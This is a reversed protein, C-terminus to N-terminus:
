SGATTTSAATAKPKCAFLYETQTCYGDMCRKSIPIPTRDYIACGKEAEAGIMKMDSGTAVVKVKDQGIDSIVANACGALAVGLLVWAASSIIRKLHEGGNKTSNVKM